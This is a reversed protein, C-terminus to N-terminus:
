SNFYSNCDFFPILIFIPIKQSISILFQFSIIPLFPILISISKRKLISIGNVSFEPIVGASELINVGIAQVPTGNESIPQGFFQGVIRWWIKLTELPCLVYLYNQHPKVFSNQSPSPSSFSQGWIGGQSCPGSFKKKAHGSLINPRPYLPREWLVKAM